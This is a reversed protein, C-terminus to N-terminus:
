SDEWTRKGSLVETVFRAEALKRARVESSAGDRAAQEALRHMILQYNESVTEDSLLNEVEDPLPPAFSELEEDADAAPEEALKQALNPLLEKSYENDGIRTGSSTVPYATTVEGPAISIRHEDGAEDEFPALYRDPDNPDAEVGFNVLAEHLERTDPTNLGYLDRVGLFSALRVFDWYTGQLERDPHESVDQELWTGDSSRIFGKTTEETVQLFDYVSDETANQVNMDSLAAVLEDKSPTSLSQYVGLHGGLSSLTQFKGTLAQGDAEEGTGEGEPLLEDIASNIDEHSDMEIEPPNLTM